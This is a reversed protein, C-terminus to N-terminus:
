GCLYSSAERVPLSLPHTKEGGQMVNLLALRLVGDVDDAVTQITQPSRGVDFAEIDHFRHLLHALAQGHLHLNM